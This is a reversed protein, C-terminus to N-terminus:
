EFYTYQQVFAKEIDEKLNPNNALEVRNIMLYASKSINEQHIFYKESFYTAMIRKYFRFRKTNDIDEDPNNSGIFGFSAHDDAHYIELMINICTMVIRRPEHNNTLISYKSKCHRMSKLHFKIAYVNYDYCEVWVWYWQNSKTSKFTYLKKSKLHGSKNNFSQVFRHPYFFVM